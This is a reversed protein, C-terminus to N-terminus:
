GIIATENNRDWKVPKEHVYALNALNFTVAEEFGRDINCSTKGHGRIADVWEKLHLFTADTMRGDIYTPGYGGLMYVKSTASSVADVDSGPAYYYLPDSPDAQINKYRASNQNRYLMVARDVDMTAESGLIRSQQYVDNKLTGNYTLTLGREPYNFVANFVDPMDGHHKYYYQGGTAVVSEPIGLNLIQNVADYQHTFDNGTLSTGYDSYRQWSFFRKLDFEHWPADHLFEKWNINEKNGLKHDFADDRIWAGFVTNRNTYTQVMNVVGVVDKRYLERAVKYSMQQRNQHGLQFVVNTSKITDKLRVADEISHAMPKELYVHLGKGAAEVAIPVHTHDATAIIVADVEGSAILDRYSPYIKAPRIKAQAADKRIYNQSILAGRGAHVEFVDCVATIEINLNENDVYTRKFYDNYKGQLTNERIVDPHAFGLSLLLAEGRWGVGVLGIRLKNARDGTPPRLKQVPADLRKIGLPELNNVSNQSLKKNINSKFALAFYGLLPITALGKIIDRRKIKYM